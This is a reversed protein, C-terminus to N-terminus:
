HSFVIRANKVISRELSELTILNRFVAFTLLQATAEAETASHGKRRQIAIIADHTEKLQQETVERNIASM